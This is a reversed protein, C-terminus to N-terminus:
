TIFSNRFEVPRRDDISIVRRQEKFNMPSDDIIVCATHTTTTTEGLKKEKWSPFSILNLYSVAARYVLRINICIYIKRTRKKKRLDM